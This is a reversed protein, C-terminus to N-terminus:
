KKLILGYCWPGRVGGHGHRDWEGTVELQLVNAFFAKVKYIKLKEKDGQCSKHFGDKLTCLRVYDKSNARDTNETLVYTETLYKAFAFYENGEDQLVSDLIAQREALCMHEVVGNGATDEQIGAKPVPGVKSLTGSGRGGPKGGNIAGVKVGGGRAFGAFSPVRDRGRGRGGGRATAGDSGRVVVKKDPSRRPAGVPRPRSKSESGFHQDGHPVHHSNSSEGPQSIFAREKTGLAIGSDNVFGVREGNGYASGDPVGSVVAPGQAQGQGYSLYAGSAYGPNGMGLAGYPVAMFGQASGAGVGENLFASGNSGSGTGSFLGGAGPISPDMAMGGSPAAYVSPSFGFAMMAQVQNYQQQQQPTFGSLDFGPNQVGPGQGAMVQLNGPSMGYTFPSLGAQQAYLTASVAASSPDLGHLIGNSGAIGGDVLSVSTGDGSVVPGGGGASGGAGVSPMGIQSFQMFAPNNPSAGLGRQENAAEMEAVAESEGGAHSLGSTGRHGVGSASFFVPQQGQNTSAAQVQFETETVGLAQSPDGHQDHAGSNAGALESIQQPLSQNIQLAESGVHRSTVGTISLKKEDSINAAGAPINAAMGADGPSELGNVLPRTGIEQAVGGPDDASDRNHAIILANEISPNGTMGDTGLVLAGDALCATDVAILQDLSASAHPLASPPEEFHLLSWLSPLLSAKNHAAQASSLGTHGVAGTIGNRSCYMGLAPAVAQTVAERTGTGLGAMPVIMADAAVQRVIGVATSADGTADGTPGVSGSSKFGDFPDPVDPWDCLLNEVPASALGRSPRLSAFVKRMFVMADRARSRAVHAEVVRVPYEEGLKIGAIALIDQSAKWPQHIFQTPVNRLEPLWRRVYQGMPDQRIGYKVPNVLCSFPFSDTNSGSTWQWGLANSSQDGDILLHHFESLGRQWPLLLYKTLFSALLFRMSNHVWGTSELQRMGADVIPYGTRGRRWKGFSTGDDEAWPFSSFEEVLPRKNFDPHHFHVHYSFDRLCLNKLFARASLSINSSSPQASALDLGDQRLQQFYSFHQEPDVGGSVGLRWRQDEERRAEGALVVAAAAAKGAAAAAFSAEAVTASGSGENVADMRHARRSAEARQGERRRRDAVNEEDARQQAVAAVATARAVNAVVAAVSAKESARKARARAHAASAENTVRPSESRTASGGVRDGASNITTPNLDPPDLGDVDNVHDDALSIRDRLDSREPVLGESDRDYEARVAAEAAVDATQAAANARAEAAVSARTAVDVAHVNSRHVTQDWRSVRVRAAHYIRRPSLEGFRIHPSLRSTGLFDRRCREEGFAPFVEHLFTELMHAANVSGPTWLKAMAECYEADENGLGLDNIPVSKVVGDIGKLRSPSSFPQPPPPLTMWARMYAHFTRFGSSVGSDGGGGGPVGEDQLEWPEVLLESKFSEATLGSAALEARLREDRRLLEPEYCRNWFVADAGVERVFNKLEEEVAGVRFVLQVGLGRLEAALSTLSHQLWWRKARSRCDRGRECIFLPAVPGGRQAAALLAPNDEIRLDHRFFVVSPKRKFWHASDSAAGTRQRKRPAPVSM